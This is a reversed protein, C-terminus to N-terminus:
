LRLVSRIAIDIKQIDQSQIRGISHRVRMAAITALKVRLLSPARLGAQQWGAIRYDGVRPTGAVNGTIQAIILDGTSQNYHDGSMVLAPRNKAGSLDTFPFPVLVVDGRKYGTTSQTQTV